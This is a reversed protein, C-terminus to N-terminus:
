DLGAFRIGIETTMARVIASHERGRVLGPAEKWWDPSYLDFQHVEFRDGFRSMRSRASAIM